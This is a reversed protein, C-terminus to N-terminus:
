QPSKQARKEAKAQEEMERERIGLRIIVGNVPSSSAFKSIDGGAKAFADSYKGLILDYTLNYGLLKSLSFSNNVANAYLTGGTTNGTFLGRISILGKSVEQNRQNAGILKQTYQVFNGAPNVFKELMNKYAEDGMLVKLNNRLKISNADQSFFTNAVNSAKVAPKASSSFDDFLFLANTAATKALTELDSTRGSDRLANAFKRVDQTDMEVLSETFKVNQTLDNRNLGYVGSGGQDPNRLLQTLPDNNASNLAEELATEPLSSIKNKGFLPIKGSNITKIGAAERANKGIEALKWSPLATDLGKNLNIEYGLMRDVIETFSAKNFSGSSIAYKASTKAPNSLMHIQKGLDWLAWSQSKADKSLNINLKAATSNFAERINKVVADIEAPSESALAKAYLMGNSDNKMAVANPNVDSYTMRKAYSDVASAAPPPRNTLNKGLVKNIEEVTPSGKTEIFKRKLDDFAKRYKNYDGGMATIKIFTSVDSPSVTDAGAISFAKSMERIDRINGIGLEDVPVGALRLTEFEKVLQAHDYKRNASVYGDVEKISKRFAGERLMSNVNRRYETAADIGVTQKLMDEYKLLGDYASVSPNFQNPNAANRNSKGQTIVNNYLGEVDGAEMLTIADSDLADFRAKALSNAKNFTLVEDAGRTQQLFSESADKLASFGQASVRKAASPAAGGTILRAAIVDRAKRYESLSLEPKEGFLNIISASLIQKDDAAISKNKEINNLVDQRNVVVDDMGIGSLDYMESVKSASALNATNQLDQTIGGAQGLRTVTELDPIGASYIKAPIARDAFEKLKVQLAKKQAENKFGKVKTVEDVLKNIEQPQVINNQVIKDVVSKAAQGDAYQSLETVLKDSINALAGNYNALAKPNQKALQEGERKTWSEIVEGLMVTGGGREASIAQKAKNIDSLRNGALSLSTTGVALGAPVGVRLAIDKLGTPLSYEDPNMAYNALESAGVTSITNGSFARIAGASPGVIPAAGAITAGLVGRGSIDKREGSAVEIGQAALESAGSAGAMIAMTPLVGLGGTLAGAALVPAIRATQALGRMTQERAYPNLTESVGGQIERGTLTSTFTDPQRIEPQEPLAEQPAAIPEEGTIRSYVRQEKIKSAIVNALETDGAADAAALDNLMENESINAM